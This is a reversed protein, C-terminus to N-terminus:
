FLEINEESAPPQTTKTQAAAVPSPTSKEARRKAVIENVDPMEPFSLPADIQADDSFADFSSHDLASPELVGARGEDIARHVARESEMTYNSTLHSTLKIQDTTPPGLLLADCSEFLDQLTKFLTEIHSTALDKFACAQTTEDCHIAIAETTQGVQLMANLTADRYAHLANEARVGETELHATQARGGECVSACEAIINELGWIFADLDAATTENFKYTEDSIRCTGEALVELGTGQGTHAAQIQANLAILKINSSITRMTSTLNSAMGGLPKITAYIEDQMQVTDSVLARVSQIIDLLIQVMGDEAASVSKFYQLSVCEQDLETTRERLAILADRVDTEARTLDELVTLIHTAQLSSAEKIYHLHDQSDKAEYDIGDESLPDIRAHLADVAKAIHELKQRTIDQLQINTVIRSAQESIGRSATALRVDRQANDSMDKRLTEISVKILHKKKEVEAAQKAVHVELRHILQIIIEHSRALSQFHESFIEAVKQHLQEIDKTLGMFISQVAEPLCASEVKFLTQIFKLPAITNNLAAELGRVASLQAEHHRLRTILRTSKGVCDDIYALPAELVALTEQLHGEGGNAGVVFAVLEESEKILTNATATTLELGQSVNLFRDEIAQAFGNLGNFKLLTEKGAEKLRRNAKPALRTALARPLVRHAKMRGRKVWHAFRRNIGETSLHMRTTPFSRLKDWIDATAKALKTINHPPM